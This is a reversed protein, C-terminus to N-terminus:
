QEYGCVVYGSVGRFVLLLRVGEPGMFPDPVGTSIRFSRNTM